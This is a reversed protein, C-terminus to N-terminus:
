IGNYTAPYNNRSIAGLTGCIERTLRHFNLTTETGETIPVLALGWGLNLSVTGVRIATWRGLAIRGPPRHSNDGVLKRRQANLPVEVPLGFAQEVLHVPDAGMFENDLRRIMIGAQRRQRGLADFVHKPGEAVANQIELFVPPELVDQNELIVSFGCASRELM